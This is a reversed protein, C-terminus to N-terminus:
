SINWTTIVVGKSSGHYLSAFDVLHEQMQRASVHQHPRTPTMEEESVMHGSSFAHHAHAANISALEDDSVVDEGEFDAMNKESKTSVHSSNCSGEDPSLIDEVM